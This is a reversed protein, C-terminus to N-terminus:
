RAVSWGTPYVKERVEPLTEHIFARARAAIQQITASYREFLEDFPDAVATM